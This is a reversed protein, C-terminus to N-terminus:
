AKSLGVMGVGRSALQLAWCSDRLLCVRRARRAGSDVLKFFHPELGNLVSMSRRTALMNGTNCHLTAAREVPVKSSEFPQSELESVCIGHVESSISAGGGGGGGGGCVFFLYVYFPYTPKTERDM